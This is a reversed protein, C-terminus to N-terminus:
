AGANKFLGRFDIAKAGIDHMIKIEVGNVDFGDRTQVQPGDTGELRALEVMDVQGIDAMLFWPNVSGGAGTELRPEVDLRLPTRGAASFPSFNGSSDPLISALLKEATTEHEPPVYMWVPTLAIEAGDLGVQRRMSKRGESLGAETPAAPSSSLNGHQSSFLAFTDALAANAKIIDWVTDSELDAARRGMREPLRTFAAMDDNIITKRTLALIKAFEEVQYKEAAESIAGRKVESGEELKELKPADGLNTRSIQKFDAVTVESTFARWTIPAASYGGRLTKNLVNALIEPFDSTSLMGARTNNLAMDAILHKPLGGTRINNGELCIRAMDVLSLYAYDRGADCLEYGPMSFRRGNETTEKKKARFRHLLASTMGEIRGKRANDDGIEVTNTARTNNEPKKDKEALADIVLTRVEDTSKGEKIYQESLKSDLKVKEVISRIEVQRKNEQAIGELRAEEKLKAIEEPTMKNGGISNHERVEGSNEVGQKTPEDNKELVVPDATRTEEVEEVEEVLVCDTMVEDKSRIQAGPDAGANVVSIEVPEWDVARFIPTGNDDGVKETRFTNYGVSINRLIGNEIDRFIPNVDENDSFRLTAIGKGDELRAKEVVGITARVGARETFGHNDMVPAAGSKLRGMRVDGKKMSLEEFFDETFFGRRLVRAGEAFIVEVTRKEKNLTKPEFHANRHMTPLSVKRTKTKKLIPM